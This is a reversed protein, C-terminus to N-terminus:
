ETGSTDTALDLVANRIKGLPTLHNAGKMITKLDSVVLLFAHEMDSHDVVEKQIRRAEKRATLLILKGLEFQVADRYDLAQSEYGKFKM